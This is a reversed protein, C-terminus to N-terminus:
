LAIAPLEAQLPEVPPANTVDVTARGAVAAPCLMRNRQRITLSAVTELTPQRISLTEMLSKGHGSSGVGVGAGVGVADGDGVSVGVGSGVALGEGVCVTNIEPLTKLQAEGAGVAVGGALGVGGDSGGTGLTIM